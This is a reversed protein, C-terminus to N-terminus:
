KCSPIKLAVEVPECCKKKKNHDNQDSPINKATAYMSLTRKISGSSAMATNTKTTIPHSGRFTAQQPHQKKLVNAVM